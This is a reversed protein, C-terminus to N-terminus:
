FGKRCSRVKYECLEQFRLDWKDGGKSGEAVGQGLVLSQQEYEARKKWYMALLGQYNIWRALWENFENLHRQDVASVSEKASGSSPSKTAAAPTPNTNNASNNNSNNDM